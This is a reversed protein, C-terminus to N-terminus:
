LVGLALAKLTAAARTSCELKRFVSEVHTRVTSPSLSLDRAVEKNSAGRSIGRLVDVERASLRATQARPNVVRRPTARADVLANVVDADHRGQAAEEHLLRAAEDHTFAARWPRAARLAVWAASASLIRAEISLAAGAAGRFYGSGDLREYAYSGLEAAEALAGTQKGARSTWYPVLRAKEWASQTLRAPTNWVPNPVAARGMGHILGACYLRNQAAEDLAFRTACNAATAAVSRSYGTMWPLKLDIIDAVLEVPTPDNMNPTLLAADISASDAQELEDLWQAALRVTLRALKDPYRADARQAILAQAREIGYTRSFIELEGALAVVFVTAPVASGALHDPAGSGDWSEFVHRLTTETEGGLGLMRAAEGSVECHIRALPTIVAGLDAHLELPAWDTKLALMAERSAVDDGLAEAFGAANATCGSWRLLSAECVAIAAAEGLEAAHALRRALWATRISHDTPQGMSLDGIFALAKVADFVRVAPGGSLDPSTQM